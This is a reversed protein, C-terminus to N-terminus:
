EAKDKGIKYFYISTNRQISKRFAVIYFLTGSSRFGEKM